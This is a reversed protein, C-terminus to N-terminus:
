RQNLYALEPKISITIHCVYFCKSEPFALAAVPFLVLMGLQPQHYHRELVRLVLDIFIPAQVITLWLDWSLPKLFIWMSKLKDPEARVVMVVGFESYPLSFDVREERYVRITVDGVVAEYDPRKTGQLKNVLDNYTGNSDGSDDVFPIFEPELRYNLSGLAAKFVDICYRTANYTKSNNIEQVNVFKMFGTKQSGRGEAEPGNRIRGM